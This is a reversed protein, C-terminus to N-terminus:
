INFYRYIFITGVAYLFVGFLRQLKAKDMKNSKNAGLRAMFMTIPIFILFAPVNIFGISLPLNANLYSGTLFFGLGGFLITLFIYSFFMALTSMENAAFIEDGKTM